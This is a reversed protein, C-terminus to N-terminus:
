NCCPPAHQQKNIEQKNSSRAQKNTSTVTWCIWQFENIKLLWKNGSQHMRGALNVVFISCRIPLNVLWFRYFNLIWSTEDGNKNNILLRITIQQFVSILDRLIIPIQWVRQCQFQCLICSVSALLNTVLEDLYNVRSLNHVSIWIIFDPWNM